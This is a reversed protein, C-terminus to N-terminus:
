AEFYGNRKEPKGSFSGMFGISGNLRSSKKLILEGLRSTLFCALTNESFRSQAHGLKDGTKGREFLDQAGYIM